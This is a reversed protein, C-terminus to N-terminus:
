KRASKVEVAIVNQEGALLEWAHSTGEDMWMVQGPHLDVITEEGELTRLKFRATGLSVLVLAHHSHMPSTTGPESIARLVRVHENEMMVHHVDPDIEVADPPRDEAWAVGALFILAAACLTRITM